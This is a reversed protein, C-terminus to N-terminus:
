ARRGFSEHGAEDDTAESAGPPPAVEVSFQGEIPDPALPGRLLPGGLSEGGELDAAM